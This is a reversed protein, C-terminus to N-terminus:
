FNPVVSTLKWDFGSFRMGATLDPKTAAADKAVAVSFGLPGDFGFSKINALGFSPPKSVAAPAAPAPAPTAAPAPAPAPASPQGGVGPLGPLGPIGLQTAAAGVGPLSGLGGPLSPMGGGGATAGPPKLGLLNLGPINLGGLGGGVKNMEEMMIKEVTGAVNGGERAIRIVNAPTVVKELVADVLQPMLKQKLEGTMLGGAQRTIGKEVEASVVPRLSQRVSPFDVKSALAAADGDRLATALKYGSWAPWAIYFGLLGFIILAILKKM